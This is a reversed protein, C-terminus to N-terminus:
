HHNGPVRLSLLRSHQRCRRRATKALRSAAQGVRIALAVLLPLRITARYM